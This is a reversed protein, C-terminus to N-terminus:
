VNIEKKKTIVFCNKKKKWYSRAYCSFPMASCVDAHTHWWRVVHPSRPTLVIEWENGGGGGGSVGRSEWM